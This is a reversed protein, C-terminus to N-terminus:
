LPRPSIFGLWSQSVVSSLLTRESNCTRTFSTSSASSMKPRSIPSRTSGRLIKMWSLASAALTSAQINFHAAELSQPGRYFQLSVTFLEPGAQRWAAAGFFRGAAAYVSPWSNQMVRAPLRLSAINWNTAACLSVGRRSHLGDAQERFRCCVELRVRWMQRIASLSCKARRPMASPTSARDWPFISPRAGIPM